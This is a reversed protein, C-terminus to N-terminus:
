IAVYQESASIGDRVSPTRRLGGLPGLTGILASRKESSFLGTMTSFKTFSPEPSEIGLRLDQWGIRLTVSNKPEAADHRM